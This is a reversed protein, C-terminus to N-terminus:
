CLSRVPIFFDPFSVAFVFPFYFRAMVSSVSGLFVLEFNSPCNEQFLVLFPCSVGWEFWVDVNGCLYNAGCGVGPSDIISFCYALICGFELRQSCGVDWCSVLLPFCRSCSWYYWWCSFVLCCWGGGLFCCWHCPITVWCTGIAVRCTGNSAVGICIM